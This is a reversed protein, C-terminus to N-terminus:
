SATSQGHIHIRIRRGGQRYFFQVFRHFPQKVSPHKKGDNNTRGFLYFIRFPPKRVTRRYGTNRRGYKPINRFAPPIVRNSPLDSIDKYGQCCSFFLNLISTSSLATSSKMVDRGILRNKERRVTRVCGLTAKMSHDNCFFVGCFRRKEKEGKKQQKNM